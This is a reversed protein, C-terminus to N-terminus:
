YCVSRRAEGILVPSTESGRVHAVIPPLPLPLLTTDKLLSDELFRDEPSPPLSCLGPARSLGPSNDRSRDLPGFPIVSVLTVVARILEGVIAARPAHCNGTSRKLDIEVLRCFFAETTRATSATM